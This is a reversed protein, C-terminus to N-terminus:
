NSWNRLALAWSCADPTEQQGETGELLYSTRVSPSPVLHETFDRGVWSNQLEVIRHSGSVQCFEAAHHLVWAYSM